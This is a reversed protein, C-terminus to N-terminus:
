FTGQRHRLGPAQGLRVEDISSNCTKLAVASQTSPDWARYVSSFGGTGIKELVRYKGLQVPTTEVDGSTKNNWEIV